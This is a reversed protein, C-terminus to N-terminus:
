RRIQLLRVVGLLAIGLIYGVAINGTALSMIGVFLATVFWFKRQTLDTILLCHKAGVYIVMLGLISLPIIRIVKLIEQGFIVGLGVLLGGIMLNAGGTRAGFRYHATLGGSGHCVPSGGVLGAALNSLGMGVSLSSEKVREAQQGGFYSHALEKTAVVANGLTLPIQPLVLLFFAPLLDGAAPLSAQIPVPGLHDFFIPPKGMFIGAFAGFSLIGISAPLPSREKLLLIMVGLGVLPLMLHFLLGLGPQPSFVLRLGARLLMLGVGLQIGRIIPLPFARILFPLIGSLGILLLLLGMEMSAAKIVGISLGQAIAIAGVAKLPQVPIPLRYYIGGFIYVLGVVLFCATPNLGNISILGVIIPLLTGLDGLAGGFERLDFRLGGCGGGVPHFRTGAVAEKKDL